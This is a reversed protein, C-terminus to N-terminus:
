KPPEGRNLASTKVTTQEGDDFKVWTISPGSMVVAGTRYLRPGDLLTLAYDLPYNSLFARDGAHFPGRKFPSTM